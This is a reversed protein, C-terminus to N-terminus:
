YFVRVDEQGLEIIIIVAKKFQCVGLGPKYWVCELVQM